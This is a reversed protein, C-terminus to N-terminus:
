FAFTFGGLVNLGFNPYYLYREYAKNFLNNGRIFAGIQKNYQYSLGLSLDAFADIKQINELIAANATNSEYTRLRANTETQFYLDANFTFKQAFKINATSNFKLAPLFWAEKQVPLEYNNYEIKNDWRINDTFSLNLEGTFGTVTANGDDYQVLFKQPTNIDNLFYQFNQIRQQVIMAKFGVGATVTGKVGAAIKTKEVQNRIEVEDSIFPNQYALDKLSTKNVNGSLEGFLTVYNDIVVYDISAAPYLYSKSSTGFTKIYNLGATLKFREGDLKLFPNLKFLNNETEQSPFTIKNVDISTNFGAQFKNLNKSLGGNLIFNTEKGDTKQRFSYGSVKLLYALRNESTEDIHNYLEAEANIFDTKQFTIDPAVLLNYPQLPILQAGYFNNGRREYGLRGDITIKELISKGFLSFQSNSMNQQDLKGRMSLHKAYFGAQLAEDKGNAIYVEGLLNRLTGVGLKAYNNLLSVEQEPALNQIQLQRIDSNTELKKDLLSYGVKPAFIRNDNLNPNRRIKVADALIPKYERVVEFEEAVSPKETDPKKEETKPKTEQASVHEALFLCCFFSFTILIYKTNRKM